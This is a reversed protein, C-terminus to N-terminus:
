VFMEPTVMNRGTEGYESHYTISMARRQAFWGGRAAFADRAALTPHQAIEMGNKENEYKHHRHGCHVYRYETGGWMQHFQAAFLGPLEDPKKIHGHHFALMTKGHQFAYYPLESDNVTLRPENEYLAAFMHRLWVSGAMDHNGEALVLHVAPHKSLAMDVVARLSHVTASVIKSFRGDVDLIHKSTPTLAELGDTHLFDGLQCIVATQADPSSAIMHSFADVLTKQAIKIDWDAGGELHWALMGMHYDTVTYLNCLKENAAKPAKTAKARPLKEAMARCADEFVERQRTADETTKIWQPGFESQVLTSTGKLRQGPPVAMAPKIPKKWLGWDVSREAAREAANLFTNTNGATHGYAECALRLAGYEGKPPVVGKPPHGLELYKEITKLREEADEKTYGPNAM